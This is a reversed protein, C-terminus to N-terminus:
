EEQREDDGEGTLEEDSEMFKALKRGRPAAEDVEKEDEIDSLGLGSESYKPPEKRKRAPPKMM